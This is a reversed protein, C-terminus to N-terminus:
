KKTEVNAAGAQDLRMLIAEVEALKGPQGNALVSNTREDATLRVQSNAFLQQLVKVSDRANASTLAFIKLEAVPADAAARRGTPSDDLHATVVIFEGASENDATSQIADVLAPEGSTLRLTSQTNITATRQRQIWAEGPIDGDRRPTDALRSQEAKFDLLISGRDDVRPTASILTGVNLMQYSYSFAGEEPPADRPTERAPERSERPPVQSFGGRMRGTMNRSTAVPVREGVQVTAPQGEVTAMRIRVTRDLKGQKELEVIASASRVPPTKAGEGSAAVQVMLVEITVLQASPAAKTADTQSSPRQALAAAAVFAVSAL